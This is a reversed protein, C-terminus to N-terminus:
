NVYENYNVHFYYNDVYDAVRSSFSVSFYVMVVIFLLHISGDRWKTKSLNDKEKLSVSSANDMFM